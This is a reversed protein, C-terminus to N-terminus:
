VMSRARGLRYSCSYRLCTSTRESISVYNKLMANKEKEEKEKKKRGPVNPDRAASWKQTVAAIFSSKAALQPTAFALTSCSLGGGINAGVGSCSFYSM